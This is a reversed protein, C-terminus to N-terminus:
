NTSLAEKTSTQPIVQPDPEILSALSLAEDEIINLLKVLRFKLSTYFVTSLIAVILGAVTTGIAIGLGDFITTISEATQNNDYFAYFMGLVTGLLGLMPATLAIDNLLSIRQWLALGKRRGESQVADMIIQPGHKRVHLGSSLLGSLFNDDQQCTLLAANYKKEALQSRVQELFLKPMMDSLRLTLLTYLWLIFSSVSMVLLASYITPSGSFVKGLDLMTKPEEAFACSFPIISLFLLTKKM